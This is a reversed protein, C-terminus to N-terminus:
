DPTLKFVDINLVRTLAFYCVGDSDFAMARPDIEGDIYPRCRAEIEGEQGLRYIWAHKRGRTIVLVRGKHDVTLGTTSTAGKLKQPDDYWEHRVSRGPLRV